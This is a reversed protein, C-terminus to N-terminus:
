GRGRFVPQDSLWNYSGNGSAMLGDTDAQVTLIPSNFSKIRAKSEEAMKAILPTIEANDLRMALNFRLAELYGPPFTLKGDLNPFFALAQWAYLVTQIAVTPYPWYSLTRLPFGGDEWVKQPLPAGINKVPIASWGQEDVIDLDIETPQTPNGLWLVTIREIRPPRPINIDGGVGVTYAQKNVSLNFPGLPNVTFIMLREANWGDIMQNLIELYDKAEDATPVRGASLINVARMSGKIIDLASYQLGPTPATIPPLPM